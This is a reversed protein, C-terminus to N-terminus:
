AWEGVFTEGIRYKKHVPLRLEIPVTNGQKEPIPDRLSRDYPSEAPISQHANRIDLNYLHHLQVGIHYRGRKTPAVRLAKYIFGSTQYGDHYVAVPRAEDFSCIFGTDGASPPVLFRLPEPVGNVLYLWAARFRERRCGDSCRRDGLRRLGNALKYTSTPDYTDIEKLFIPKVDYGKFFHSGCSERYYGRSHTKDPNVTFGLFSLVKLLLDYCEVPVIIDDGYVGVWYPNYGYLEAVALAAASFILSELEFTYGNGMSSIKELPIVHEKYTVAPSRLMDLYMFWSPPLLWRVAERSVTDSAAQLDLTVLDGDRSAIYALQQNVTQDLLDIGWRKLRNKLYIGVGKQYFSNLGPEIAISRHTKANKPVFTMKGGRVKTIRNGIALDWWPSANLMSVCFDHADNSVSFEKLFKTQSATDGYKTLPSVGPGWNAQSAVEHSVTDGVLALIKQRMRWLIQDVRPDLPSVRGQDYSRFRENTERCQAEAKMFKEFAVGELDVGTNLHKCKSLFSVSALDDNFSELDEYDLPNIDKEALQKHEGYKYLLWCSLALPSNIAELVALIATRTQIFSRAGGGKRFFLSPSPRKGTRSSGSWGISVPRFPRRVDQQDLKSLM